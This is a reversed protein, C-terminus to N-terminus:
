SNHHDQLEHKNRKRSSQYRSANDTMASFHEARAAGRQQEHHQSYRLTLSIKDPMAQM